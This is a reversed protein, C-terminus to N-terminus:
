SLWKVRAQLVDAIPEHVHPRTGCITPSHVFDDPAFTVHQVVKAPGHTTTKLKLVPLNGLPMQHGIALPQECLMEGFPQANRGVCEALLKAFASFNVFKEVLILLIPTKM